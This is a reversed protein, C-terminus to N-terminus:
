RSPSSCISFSCMMPSRLGGGLGTVEYKEYGFGLFFPLSVLAKFGSIDEDSIEPNEMDYSIPVDLSISFLAQGSASFASLSLILASCVAVLFAKM